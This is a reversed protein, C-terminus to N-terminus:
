TNEKMYKRSVHLSTSVVVALVLAQIAAFLFFNVTWEWKTFTEFLWRGNDFYEEVSQLLIGGIISGIILMTKESM